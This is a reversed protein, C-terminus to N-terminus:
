RICLDYVTLAVTLVGVSAPKGLCCSGSSLQPCAISKWITSGSPLSIYQASSLTTLCWSGILVDDGDPDWWHQIRHGHLGRCSDQSWQQLICWHCWCLEDWCWICEWFFSNHHWLSYQVSDGAQLPWAPHSYGYMTVSFLLVFVPFLWVIFLFFCCFQLFCFLSVSLCIFWSYYWSLVLWVILVRTRTFWDHSSGRGHTWPMIAVSQQREHGSESALQLAANSGTATYHREGLNSSYMNQCGISTGHCIWLDPAPKQHVSVSLPIHIQCLCWYHTLFMSSWADCTQYRSECSFHDIRIGLQVQKM